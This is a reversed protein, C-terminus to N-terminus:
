SINIQNKANIEEIKEVVMKLGEIDALENQDALEQFLGITKPDIETDLM